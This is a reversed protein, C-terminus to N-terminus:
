YVDRESVVLITAAAGELARQRSDLLAGLITAMFVAIGVGLVTLATRVPSRRASRVVYPVFRIM